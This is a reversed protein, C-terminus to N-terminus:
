HKENPSSQVLTWMITNLLALLMTSIIIIVLHL